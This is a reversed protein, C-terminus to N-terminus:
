HQLALDGCERLHDRLQGRRRHRRGQSDRHKRFPLLRRSPQRHRRQRRLNRLAQSPCRDVEFASPPAQDPGQRELPRYFVHCPSEERTDAARLCPPPKRELSDERKLRCLRLIRLQARCTRARGDQGAPGPRQDRLSSPRQANECRPRSLHHPHGPLNLSLPTRDPRLLLIHM